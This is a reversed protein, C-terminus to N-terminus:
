VSPPAPPRMWHTPTLYQVFTEEVFHLKDQTRWRGHTNCWYCDVRREHTVPPNWNRRCWLDVPTGDKPATEISQWESVEIEM